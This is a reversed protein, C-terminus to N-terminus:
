RLGRSEILAVPQVGKAPMIWPTFRARPPSGFAAVCKEEADQQRVKERLFSMYALDCM